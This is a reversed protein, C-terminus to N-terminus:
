GDRQPGVSPDLPPPLPLDVGGWSGGNDSSFYGRMPLRFIENSGGALSRSHSPNITIYTESQPGCENSADVNSGVSLPSSTGGNGSTGHKALHQYKNWWTPKNPNDTQSFALLAYNLFTVLVLSRKM